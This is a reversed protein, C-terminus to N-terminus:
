EQKNFEIPLQQAAATLCSLNLFSLIKFLFRLMKKLFFSKHLKRKEKGNGEGCASVEKIDEDKKQNAPLRSKSVTLLYIRKQIHLGSVKCKYLM